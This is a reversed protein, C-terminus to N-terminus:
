NWFILLCVILYRLALNFYAKQYEYFIWLPDTCSTNLGQIWAMCLLTLRLNILIMATFIMLSFLFVSLINLKKFLGRSSCRLSVGMMIRIRKQFLFVKSINTLNVWFIFGYKFLSHSNSCYATKIANIGLLHYLRRIDFCATCLRHLVFDIHSKWTPHNALLLGLYKLTDSETVAQDAYGWNVLFHWFKIPTFRVISTKEVNLAVQNGQFWKCIHLM